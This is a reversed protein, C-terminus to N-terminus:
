DSDMIAMAIEVLIRLRLWGRDIAAELDGNAAWDGFITAIFWTTMLWFAVMSWGRLSRLWGASGHKLEHKAEYVVILKRMAPVGIATALGLLVLTALAPAALGTLM